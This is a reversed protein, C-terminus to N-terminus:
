ERRALNDAFATVGLCLLVVFCSIRNPTQDYQINTLYDYTSCCSKFSCCLHRWVGLRTDHVPMSGGIFLLLYYIVEEHLLCSSM